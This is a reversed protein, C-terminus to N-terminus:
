SLSGSIQEGDAAVPEVAQGNVFVREGAVEILVAGFRGHWVHRQTGCSSLPLDAQPAAGRRGVHVEPLPIDNM